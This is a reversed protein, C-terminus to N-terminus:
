GGNFEITIECVSGSKPSSESDRDLAQGVSVQYFLYVRKSRAGHLLSTAGIKEGFMLRPSGWIGNASSM